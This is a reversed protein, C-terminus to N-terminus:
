NSHKATGSLLLFRGWVIGPLWDLSLNERESRLISIGAEHALSSLADLSRRYLGRELRYSMKVLPPENKGLIDPEMVVLIGAVSVLKVAVADDDSAHHLINAFLVYDFTRGSVALTELSVSAFEMNPYRSFRKKAYAVAGEDRMSSFLTSVTGLSCGIELVNGYNGLYKAALRHKGRHCGLFSQFLLWLRPHSQQTFRKLM